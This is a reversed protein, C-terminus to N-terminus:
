HAEERSNDIKQLLIGTHRDSRLIGSHTYTDIARITRNEQESYRYLVGSIYHMEEETIRSTSQRLERLVNKGERM